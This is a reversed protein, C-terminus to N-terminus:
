SIEKRMQYNLENLLLGFVKASIIIFPPYVMILYRAFAVGLLNPALCVLAAVLIIWFGSYYIKKWYIFIGFFALLNMPYIIFLGVFIRSFFPFFYIVDNTHTDRIDSLGSVLDIIKWLILYFYSKIYNLDEVAISQIKERIFQRELGFLTGGESVFNNLTLSLYNTNLKIQYFCYVLCFTVISYIIIKDIRSLKIIQNISKKYTIIAISFVLIISFVSGTVRISSLFLVNFLLLIMTLSIKSANKSSNFINSKLIIYTSFSIGLTVYITIGGSLCYFITYPCLVFFWSAITAIRKDFIINASKDLFLLSAVACLSALFIVAINWATTGFGLKSIIYALFNLIFPYLFSGRINGDEGYGYSSSNDHFYFSRDGIDLYASGLGVTNSILSPTPIPHFFSYVYFLFLICILFLLPYKVSGSVLDNKISIKQM